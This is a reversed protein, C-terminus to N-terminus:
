RIAGFQNYIPFVVIADFKESIVDDGIKKYMTKNRKDLKIVPGLKM